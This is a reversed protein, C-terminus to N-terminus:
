RQSAGTQPFMFSAWRSPGSPLTSVSISVRPSPPRNRQAGVPPYSSIWPSMREGGTKGSASRSTLHLLDFEGEWEGMVAEIAQHITEPVRGSGHVKGNGPEPEIITRALITGTVDALVAECKTGGSDIALIGDM